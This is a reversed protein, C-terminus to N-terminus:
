RTFPSLLRGFVASSCICTRSELGLSERDLQPRAGVTATALQELEEIPSRLGEVAKQASDQRTGCIPCEHEDSTAARFWDFAGIRDRQRALDLGYEAVASNLRQIRQLQRKADGLERDLGEGEQRLQYLRALAARTRETPTRDVFEPPKEALRRLALLAPGIAGPPDGDPLLNLEQARLFLGIVQSRWTDIASSRRRLESLLRREETKLLSLRHELGIQDNTKLGLVLPFLRKLRERHETTDTKYFMTHPNAVIHQPLFNFAAM